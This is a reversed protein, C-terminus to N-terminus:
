QGISRILNSPADGLRKERILLRITCFYLSKYVAYYFGPRGDLFGLKFLYTYVFYAWPYWWRQIHRYKFRQRRTLLSRKNCEDLDLSLARQAEWVAYDRHRDVFKVLGRDDYHDIRAKIEGLPGALVPHEHIEMDLGSWKDEDIREYMGSGVRMLALKRQGLGYKLPGGLFHNTYNLWFGVKAEDLICKELESCFHDTILEDADLFLVWKSSILSSMLVWNRKKPFRGNWEFNVLQAGFERAIEPTRDTSSSDVVIVEAFRRLRVLCSALNTSENKVPVVVTVPILPM